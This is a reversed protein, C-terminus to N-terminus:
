LIFDSATLDHLGILRISMEVSVDADNDIWVMTYDDETGANNFKEFRVEGMNSETFGAAGKWIFTDNKATGSFADIDKLNIRDVGRVFDTIVDATYDEIGSQVISRFVFSDKGSGGTLVDLGHGGVISDDGNGGDILDNGRGGDLVNNGSNGYIYNDSNNGTGNIKGTGTLILEEIFPTLVTTFSSYVTDYGQYSRESITDLNDAYYVDDGEGGILVDKGAGGVLTDNDSGGEIVDDGAGGDLWDNGYNGYVVDNGGLSYVTDDYGSLDFVDNGVFITSFINSDDSISSTYVANFISAASISISHISFIWDYQQSDADWVWLVAENVTGGTIQLSNNTSISDGYVSFYM